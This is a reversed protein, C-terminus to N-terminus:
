HNPSFDVEIVNGSKHKVASINSTEPKAPTWLDMLDLIMEAQTAISFTELVQQKTEAEVPLWDLTWHIMQQLSSIINHSNLGNELLQVNRELLTGAKSQMSKVLIHADALSPESLIIESASATYYPVSQIYEEIKFVKRCSIEVLLRGDDLQKKIRAQGGCVVSSPEYTTLNRNNSDSPRTSVLPDPSKLNLAKTPLALAVFMNNEVCEKFLLRYRPEFIHLPVVM